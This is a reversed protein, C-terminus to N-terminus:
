MLKRFRKSWGLQLAIPEMASGDLEVTRNDSVWGNGICRELYIRAALQSEDPSLLGDLTRVAQSTVRVCFDRGGREFIYDSAALTEGKAGDAQHSEIFRSSQIMQELESETM